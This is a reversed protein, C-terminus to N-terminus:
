VVIIICRVCVKFGEICRTIKSEMSGSKDPKSPLGVSHMYLHMFSIFFMGEQVFEDYSTYNGYIFLQHHKILHHVATAKAYMDGTTEKLNTVATLALNWQQTSTSPALAVNPNPDNNIPPAPAPLPVINNNANAQAQAQAQARRRREQRRTECEGRPM